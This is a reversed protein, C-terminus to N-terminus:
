LREKPTSMQGTIMARMRSIFGERWVMIVHVLLFLV